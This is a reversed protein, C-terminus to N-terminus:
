KGRNRHAILCIIAQQALYDQLFSLTISVYLSSFHFAGVATENGRVWQGWFFEGFSLECKYSLLGALLSSIVSYVHGNTQFICDRNWPFDPHKNKNQFPIFLQFIFFFFDKLFFIYGPYSHKQCKWDFSFEKGLFTLYSFMISRKLIDVNRVNWFTSMKSIKWCKWFYFHWFTLEFYFM